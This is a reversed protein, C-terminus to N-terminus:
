SGHPRPPLQCRLVYRSSSGELQRRCARDKSDPRAQAKTDTVCSRVRKTLATINKTGNKIQNRMRSQHSRETVLIGGTTDMFFWIAAGLTAIFCGFYLASSWGGFSAIFPTLVPAIFGGVNNGTNLVGCAAGVNEGGADKRAGYRPETRSNIRINARATHRILHKRSTSGYPGM